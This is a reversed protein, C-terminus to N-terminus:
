EALEPLFSIDVEHIRPDRPDIRVVVQDRQIYQTPDFWILESSFLHVKLTMPDQWQCIIRYPRRGGARVNRVQEVCQFRAQILKGEERLWARRRAGRVLLLLPVVGVATFVTGMGGLLISLFWQNWFGGIDAAYPDDPLYLVRVQEGPRYAPPNTSLSGTFEIRQGQATEFTVVPSYSSSGSNRSSSRSRVLDTVVGQAAIARAVFDRAHLFSFSAGALLGVGIVGFIGFVIGTVFRTKM